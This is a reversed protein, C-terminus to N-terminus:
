HCPLLNICYPGHHTNDCVYPVSSALNHEFSAALAHDSAVDVVAFFTSMAHTSSFTIM